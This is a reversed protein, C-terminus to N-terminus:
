LILFILLRYLLYGNMFDLRVQVNGTNKIGLYKDLTLQDASRFLPINESSQPSDSNQFSLPGTLRAELSLIRNDYTSICEGICSDNTNTSVKM